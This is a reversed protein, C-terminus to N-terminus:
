NAGHRLEMWEERSIGFSYGLFEIPKGDQTTRFSGTSEGTKRMGLRQLLRCSPENAAATGTVVKDAQLESFAHDIIARCAETAYGRGHYDFNFCYGLNFERESDTGNLAVFGIFEAGKLCVALFSDGKSFMEAIGKMEDESTPWQHDYVAYESSEYQLIMQRLAQWDAADFNRITLRETEIRTMSTEEKIDCRAPWTAQPAVM